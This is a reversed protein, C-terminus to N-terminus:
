APRRVYPRYFWVVGIMAAIMAAAGVHAAYVTDVPFDPVSSTLFQAYALASGAQFLLAVWWARPVLCAFLFAFMDAPFFYRDHMRPLLSPELGLWLIVSLIIFVPPLPRRVRFHSALVVLSALGALLLGGYAFLSRAQESLADQFFMYFNPAHASLSHMFGAQGAYVKVLSIWGRGALAAPLMLLGYIVPPLMVAIWPIAGTLLLYIFFPALFIAQVKLSLAVAYMLIAQFPCNRILYYAFALLFTTYIVDCQGWLAGNLLLTPLNLFLVASLIALRRDPRVTLVIRYVLFAAIFDFLISISKILTVPDVIGDLYSVATMMYIYPPTYNYFNDSLAAFRGHTVIYDYWQLLFNQMDHSQFPLALWRLLVASVLLLACLPYFVGDRALVASGTKTMLGGTLAEGAKDDAPDYRGQLV